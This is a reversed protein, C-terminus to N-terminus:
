GWGTNHLQCNTYNITQNTADKYIGTNLQKSHHLSTEVYNWQLTPSEVSFTDNGIRFHGLFM